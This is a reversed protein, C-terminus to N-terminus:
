YSQWFKRNFFLGPTHIDLPLLSSSKSSLPIAPVCLDKCSPSIVIYICFSITITGNATLNNAIIATTAQKVVGCSNRVGCGDLKVGNSKWTGRRPSGAFLFATLLAVTQWGQIPVMSRPCPLTAMFRYAEKEMLCRGLQARLAWVLGLDKVVRVAMSSFGKFYGLARPRYCASWVFDFTAFLNHEPCCKLL